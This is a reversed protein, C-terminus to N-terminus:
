CTNVFYFSIPIFLVFSFISWLIFSFKNGIHFYTCTQLINLICSEEWLEYAHVEGYVCLATWSRFHTAYIFLVLNNNFFYSLYYMQFLLIPRLLMSYRQSYRLNLLYKSSFMYQLFAIIFYDCLAFVSFSVMHFINTM